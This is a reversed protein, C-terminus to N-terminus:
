PLLQRQGDRPPPARQGSPGPGHRADNRPWTKRRQSFTITPHLPTRWRKKTEKRDRGGGEEKKQGEEAEEGMQPRYTHQNKKQEEM